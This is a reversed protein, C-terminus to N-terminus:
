HVNPRTTMATPLQSSQDRILSSRVPILMDVLSILTIFIFRLSNFSCTGAVTAVGCASYAYL